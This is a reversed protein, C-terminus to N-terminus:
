WRINCCSGPMSRMAAPEVRDGSYLPPDNSRLEYYRAQFAAEVAASPM